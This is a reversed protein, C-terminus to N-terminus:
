KRSRMALVVVVLAVGGILAYQLTKQNAQQAALSQANLLAQNNSPVLGGLLSGALGLLGGAYNNTPLPAPPNAAYQAAVQSPTLAGIGPGTGAAIQAYSSGGALQAAIDANTAALAANDSGTLGSGQGADASSSYGVDGVTLAGSGDFGAAAVDAGASSFAQDVIGGSDFQSM